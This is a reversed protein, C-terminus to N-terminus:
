RRAFSLAEAHIDAFVKRITRRQSLFFPLVSITMNGRGRILTGGPADAYTNEIYSGSAWPGESELIEWRALDPPRYTVKWRSKMEKGRVDISRNVITETGSHSVTKQSKILHHISGITSDDLHAQLLKWVADKPAPFVDEDEYAVVDGLSLSWERAKLFYGAGASRM